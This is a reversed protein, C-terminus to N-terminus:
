RLSAEPQSTVYEKMRHEGPSVELLVLQVAGAITM